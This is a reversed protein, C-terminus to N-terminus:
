DKVLSLWPSAGSCELAPKIWHIMGFHRAQIPINEDSSLRLLYQDAKFHEHVMALCWQWPIGPSALELIRVTDERKECVAAAQQGTATLHMVGAKGAQLSHNIYELANIDWKGYLCSKAYSQNRLLEWDATDCLSITTQQKKLNNLAKSMQRNLWAPNQETVHTVWTLQKVSFATQYGRKGYYEFLSNEAPVLVCAAAGLKRAHEHAAALLRSSIGQDRHALSTAVAFIYRAAMSQSQSYLTIPLMTLMGSITGKPETHILMNEHHHRHKFYFRADDETDGFAEQWLALLQPLDDERSHRIM